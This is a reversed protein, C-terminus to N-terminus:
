DKPYVGAQASINLLIGMAAAYFFIATGGYSIFPLPIGTAPLIGVNVGISVFVYVAFTTLIGIALFYGFIDPSKKAIIMGRWFIFAFALIILLVGFFGYEEAIIAFIYDGFSEPLFLKSQQSQGPGVGFFGGNGIAILAQRAQYSEQVVGSSDAMGFFALLRQLRYTASVAYVSALVLAGTALGGLHLLNTNGVFMLIMSIAFIVMATSFNPQLAILGCVLGSWILLPMLGLQFDKIVDKRVTLLTAIHLVLAFKAFESPQFNVPGLDIWRHAGKMESGIFFVLVLPIIAVTLIKKSLKQWIHYDINSFVLILIIGLLIRVGHKFFFMESNGYFIEAKYASASYVFAIGFLMLACVPILIFWDIRGKENM